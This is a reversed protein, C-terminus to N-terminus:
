AISTAQDTFVGALDTLFVLNSKERVSRTPRSAVAKITIPKKSKSGPTIKLPTEAFRTGHPLMYSNEIVPASANLPAYKNASFFYLNRHSPKGAASEIRSVKPVATVKNYRGLAGKIGAKFDGHNTIWTEAAIMEPPTNRKALQM